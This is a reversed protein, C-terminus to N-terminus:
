RNQYNIQQEKILPYTVVKDGELNEKHMDVATIQSNDYTRYYYIGKDTNCCSTYLTIEYKEADVMVCGRQQEVSALIHFFQSVSETESNGSLSNLSTFTAKIFRSQSSLDGPLGMAGMGRSYTKLNVAKAFTNERDKSSLHRYNNLNFMQMPFPPNNTLIGLPNDYIKIGEKLPEVVISKDRDSVIWHLPSLPLEESYNINVLNMENILTIAERVDACQALIWPIFEFPTINVKNEMEPKYEANGPFNLGAMSLGKENTADFYLPYGEVVAAMGIIAYHKEIANARRFTLPYNRPTIAIEENYSIEYDLNRGFYHSTTKYNAATCM